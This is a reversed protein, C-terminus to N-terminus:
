GRNRRLIRGIMGERSDRAAQRADLDPDASPEPLQPAPPTATRKDAVTPPPESHEIASTVAVVFQEWAAEPDLDDLWKMAGKAGPVEKMEPQRGLAEWRQVYEYAREATYRRYTNHQSAARHASVAAADSWDTVEPEEVLGLNRHVANGFAYVDEPMIREYTPRGGPGKQGIAGLLAGVDGAFWRDITAKSATITQRVTPPKGKAQLSRNFTEAAARLDTEWRARLYGDLHESAWARRHRTLVDRLQEFGSRRGRPRGGSISITVEFAMGGGLDRRTTEGAGEVGEPDGLQHAAATLDKFFRRDVPHGLVEMADLEERYKGAIDVLGYDFYTLGETNGFAALSITHWFVLAPGFADLAGAHPLVRTVLREPARGIVSTGWSARIDRNLQPSLLERHLGFVYGEFRDDFPDDREDLLGWMNRGGPVQGAHFADVEAWTRKLVGVRHEVPSTADGSGFFSSLMRDVEAPDVGAAAAAERARDEAGVYLKPEPLSTIIEESPGPEEGLYRLFALWDGGFYAVLPRWFAKTLVQRSTPTRKKAKLYFREVLEGIAWMRLAAATQPSANRAWAGILRLRADAREDAQMRSWGGRPRFVALEEAMEMGAGDLLRDLKGWQKLQADVDAKGVKSSRLEHPVTLLEFVPGLAAWAFVATPNGRLTIKRREDGALSSVFRSEKGVWWAFNVAGAVVTEREPLAWAGRSEMTAVDYKEDLCAQAAQDGGLFAVTEDDYREGLQLVREGVLARVFTNEVVADLEGFDTRRGEGREFELRAEVTELEVLRRGYSSGETM